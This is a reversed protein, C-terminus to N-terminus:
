LNDGTRNSIYNIVDGITVLLCFSPYDISIKFEEELAQIIDVIDLSDLGLDDILRSYPNVDVHNLDAQETIISIVRKELEIDTTEYVGGAVKSLQEDSLEKELEAM